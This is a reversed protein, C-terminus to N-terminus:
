VCLLHSPWITTYIVHEVRSWELNLQRLFRWQTTRMAPSIEYLSHKTKAASGRFFSYINGRKWLGQRGRSQRWFLASKYSFGNAWCAVVQVSDTKVSAIFVLYKSSFHIIKLWCKCNVWAVLVFSLIIMEKWYCTVLSSYYFVINLCYNISVTLKPVYGCILKVRSCLLHNSHLRILLKTRTLTTKVLVTSIRSSESIAVFTGEAWTTLRWDGFVTRKPLVRVRVIM